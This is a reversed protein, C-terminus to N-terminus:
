RLDIGQVTLSFLRPLRVFSYISLPLDMIFPEKNYLVVM